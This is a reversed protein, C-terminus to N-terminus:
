FLYSRAKAHSTWQSSEVASGTRRLQHAASKQIEDTSLDLVRTLNVEGTIARHDQELVNNSINCPDSAATKRWRLKPKSNCSLRLTLLTRTPTSHGSAGPLNEGGLAKALFREAAAADANALPPLRDDCREFGCGPLLYV